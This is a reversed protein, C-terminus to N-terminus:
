KGFTRKYWLRVIREENKRLWSVLDDPNTFNQPIVGNKFLFSIYSGHCCYYSREINDVHRMRVVHDWGDNPLDSVKIYKKYPIKICKENWTYTWKYDMGYLHGTPSWCPVFDPKVVKYALTVIWSPHNKNSYREKNYIYDDWITHHRFRNNTVAFVEIDFDKRITLLNERWRTGGDSGWSWKDAMPLSYDIGKTIIKDIVSNPEISYCKHNVCKHYPVYPENSEVWYDKSDDYDFDENASNTVKCLTCIDSFESDSMGISDSLDRKIDMLSVEHLLAKTKRRFARHYLTRDEKDSNSSCIAFGGHKKYSRSM